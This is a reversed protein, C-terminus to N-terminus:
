LFIFVLHEWVETICPPSQPEKFVWVESVLQSGVELETEACQRGEGMEM